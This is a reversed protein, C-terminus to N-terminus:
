FQSKLSIEGDTTIVLRISQMASYFLVLLEISYGDAGAALSEIKQSGM